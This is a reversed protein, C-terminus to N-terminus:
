IENKVERYILATYINVSKHVTYGDIYEEYTTTYSYGFSCVEWGEVSREQLIQLIEDREDEIVDYQKRSM